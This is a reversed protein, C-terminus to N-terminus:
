LDEIIVERDRKLLEYVAHTLVEDDLVEVFTYFRTLFFKDEINYRGLAKLNQIYESHIGDVEEDAWLNDRDSEVQIVEAKTDEESAVPMAYGLAEFGFVIHGRSKLPDNYKFHIMYKFPYIKSHWLYERLNPFNLDILQM